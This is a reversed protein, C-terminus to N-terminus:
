VRQARNAYAEAAVDRLQRERTHKRALRAAKRREKRDAWWQRWSRLLSGKKAAPTRASLSAPANVAAGEPTAPVSGTPQPVKSAIHEPTHPLTPMAQTLTKAHSMYSHLSQPGGATTSASANSDRGVRRRPGGVGGGGGNSRPTGDDIAREADTQSRWLKPAFSRASKL